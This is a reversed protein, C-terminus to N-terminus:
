PVAMSSVRGGAASLYCGLAYDILMRDANYRWALTQIARKMRAVWEVPVGHADTEYFLPQIEGELLQYFSEADRKWQEGSDRHTRSSGIAFGNLGDHAEAWWGDLVSANLVGNLAAKQGSTGCAELPRLPTNLWVDVGQVLRRGLGIDYDEVVVLKGAFRPERSWTVIQQLMGKGGDDKAHAKGAVIFQIPAHAAAVIRALRDADSFPLTARKYTAFRRAFGITLASPDLGVGTRREVLEVLRRRLASHVAWLEGDDIQAIARWTEAESQRQPWEPGLYRDFLRRLPTALWSTTHVGNTIHGIPIEAEARNPWLGRWMRRATHGHLDSVANRVRAGKIALVTMCFPESVAAPDVRGLAMFRGPDYGLSQRLWGLQSEVLDPAFRDHGADVPTHTTFVTQRATQRLAEETDLGDEQIRERMRELIAFASHGENVHLIIPRVGIARLARVGGVGLVIEQRIRTLEDGGYLRATLDRLPPPNDAVNTDLLLVRARGVHAIWVAIRIHERGCPVEIVLPAGDATAAPRLPLTGLDTAGYVETQWGSADLRQRFYGHAYFLGVGIMPLGLDSASKLYDGALVGLGGSYLPLSEHLGFEAAFYAVPVVRLVGAQRTAWTEEDAIYEALRRVQLNAQVTISGDRDAIALQEDDVRALLAIPNHGSADWQVPDIAHFLARVDPQWVWWLNLALEELTGRLTTASPM